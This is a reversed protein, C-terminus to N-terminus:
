SQMVVSLRKMEIIAHPTPSNMCLLSFLTASFIRNELAYYLIDVSVNYFTM